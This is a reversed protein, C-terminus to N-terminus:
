NIPNNSRGTGRHSTESRASCTSFLRQIMVTHIMTKQWQTQEQEGGVRAATFSLTSIKTQHSCTAALYLASRESCFRGSAVQRARRAMEADWTVLVIALM